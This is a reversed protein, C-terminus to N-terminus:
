VHGREYARISEHHPIMEHLRFVVLTGLNTLSYVREHGADLDIGQQVLGDERLRKLAKTLVNDRRGRLLPKLARYRRPAGVLAELIDRDTPPDQALLRAALAYEVNPEPLGWPRSM